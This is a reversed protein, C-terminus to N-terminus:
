VLSQIIAVATAVGDERSLAQGLAQANTRMVPNLMMQWIAEALQDTRLEDLPIPRPGVGLAAVRMGWFFQDIAHPLVITPVGSRLAAGTTGAGGHQVVGVTHPFLWDHPVDAVPFISDPWSMEGAQREDALREGSQREGSQRPVLLIARTGTAELAQRVVQLTARPRGLTPSGFGIYLPPPGAELFSLLNAPPQWDPRLLPWYGTVFQNPPWDAPPPVVIPSFGYLTPLQDRKILWSASSTHLTDHRWHNIASRWSQWIVQEVAMHTLRNYRGGLSFKFPLLPSPFDRTPTLPQLLCRLCPVSLAGAIHSGWLTPLGIIIADSGRCAQWASDILRVFLPRADRWFQLTARLNQAPNGHWRLAREGGPRAFLDSPNDSLLAVPLGLQEAAAAFRAHTAIRVAYGAARLGLALAFYPQVDGRTGSTLLTITKTSLSKECASFENLCRCRGVRM